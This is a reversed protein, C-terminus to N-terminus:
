IKRFVYRTQYNMTGMINTSTNWHPKNVSNQLSRYFIFLFNKPKMNSLFHVNYSSFKQIYNWKYAANKINTTKYRKHQM